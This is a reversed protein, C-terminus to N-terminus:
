SLFAAGGDDAPPLWLRRCAGRGFFLAVAIGILWHNVQSFRKLEEGDQFEEEHKEEM